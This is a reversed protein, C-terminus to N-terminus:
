MEHCKGGNKACGCAAGARNIKNKCIPCYIASCAPCCLVGDEKVFGVEQGCCIKRLILQAPIKGKRAEGSQCVLYHLGCFERIVAFCKRGKVAKLCRSHGPWRNCPKEIISSYEM